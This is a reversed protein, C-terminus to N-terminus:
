LYSQIISIMTHINDNQGGGEAHSCQVVVSLPDVVASLYGFEVFPPHVQVLLSGVEASSLQVGASFLQVGAFLHEASYCQVFDELIVM